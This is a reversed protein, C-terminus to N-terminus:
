AAAELLRDSYSDELVRGELGLADSLRAVKEREPGLDSDPPAVGELELFDGLGAVRDLHIRM